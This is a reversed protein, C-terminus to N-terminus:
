SYRRADEQPKLVGARLKVPELWDPCALLADSVAVDYLKRRASLPFEGSIPRARSMGCSDPSKQRDSAGSGQMAPIVLEVLRREDGVGENCPYCDVGAEEM